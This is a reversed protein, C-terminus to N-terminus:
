LMCAQYTAELGMCTTKHLRQAFGWVWAPWRIGNIEAKHVEGEARANRLAPRLAAAASRLLLIIIGLLGLFRLIGLLRLIGLFRLLWPPVRRCTAMSTCSGITGKDNERTTIDRLHLKARASAAQHIPTKQQWGPDGLGSVGGIRCSSLQHCKVAKLQAMRKGQCTGCIGGPFPGCTKTRTEMWLEM